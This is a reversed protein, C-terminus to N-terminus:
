CIEIVFIVWCTWMNDKFCDFLDFGDSKESFIVCIVCLDADFDLFSHFIFDSCLVCIFNGAVHLLIM